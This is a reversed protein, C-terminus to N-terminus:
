GGHLMELGDSIARLGEEPRKAQLGADARHQSLRLLWRSTPPQIAVGRNIQDFGEQVQGLHVLAWGRLIIMQPLITSLGYEAAPAITADAHSLADQIRRCNACFYGCFLRTVASVYGHSMQDAAALAQRSRALAQDPYGALWFTFASIALRRSPADGIHYSTV